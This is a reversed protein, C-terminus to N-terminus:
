EILYGNLGEEDARIENKYLFSLVIANLKSSLPNFKFGVLSFKTPRRKSYTKSLM